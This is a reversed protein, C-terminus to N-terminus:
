SHARAFNRCYHPQLHRESKAATARYLEIISKEGAIELYFVQFIASKRLNGSSKKKELQAPESM